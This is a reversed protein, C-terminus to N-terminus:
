REQKTGCYICNRTYLDPYCEHGQAKVQQATTSFANSEQLRDILALADNTETESMHAQQVLRRLLQYLTM